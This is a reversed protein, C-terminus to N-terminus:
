RNYWVVHTFGSLLAANKDFNTPTVRQGKAYKRKNTAYDGFGDYDILSGRKVMDEFEDLTYLDDDEEINEWGPGQEHPSIMDEATLTHPPGDHPLSVGVLKSRLTAGLVTERSSLVMCPVNMRQIEQFLNEAVTKNVGELISRPAGEILEKAEKLGLYRVERIAKILKIKKSQGNYDQWSQLYVSFTEPPLHVIEEGSEDLKVYEGNGLQLFWGNVGEVVKHIEQGRLSNFYRTMWKSNM